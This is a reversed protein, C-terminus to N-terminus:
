KRNRLRWMESVLTWAAKPHLIVTKAVILCSSIRTMKAKKGVCGFIAWWWFGLAQRILMVSSANIQPPNQSAWIEYRRPFDLVLVYSMSGIIVFGLVGEVVHFVSVCVDAWASDDANAARAFLRVGIAAIVILPLLMWGVVRVMRERRAKAKQLAEAKERGWWRSLM